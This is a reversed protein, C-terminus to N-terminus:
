RAVPRDRQCNQDPSSSLQRVCCARLKHNGRWTGGLEELRLRARWIHKNRPSWIAGALAVWGRSWLSYLILISAVHTLKWALEGLGVRGEIARAQQQLLAWFLLSLVALAFLAPPLLRRLQEKSPRTSCAFALALSAPLACHFRESPSTAGLM